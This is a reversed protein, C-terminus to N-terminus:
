RAGTKHIGPLVFFRGTTGTYLIYVVERTSDNVNILHALRRVSDTTGVVTYGGVNGKCTEHNPITQIEFQM